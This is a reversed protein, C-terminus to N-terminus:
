KSPAPSQALRGRARGFLGQFGREKLAHWTDLFQCVPGPGPADAVVEWPLPGTVQWVTVRAEIDLQGFARAVSIRHHGDKVFYTDAVQVLVVPPLSKGKEWVKAISLWRGRAQDYLPNFDVDFYRCRGESGRIQSIPVPRTGGDSKDRIACTARVQKLAYLDRSRGTVGSWFQGRRARQRAQAYLSNARCFPREGTIPNHESFPIDTAM